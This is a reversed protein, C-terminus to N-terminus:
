FPSNFMRAMNGISSSANGISGPNNTAKGFELIIGKLEESNVDIRLNIFRSLENVNPAKSFLKLYAPVIQQKVAGIVKLAGDIKAMENRIYRIYSPPAKRPGDSQNPGRELKLDDLQSVEKPRNFGLMPLSELLALITKADIMILQVGDAGIKKSGYIAALFRNIVCQAVQNYYFGQYEVAEIYPATKGVIDSVYECVKHTFPSCEYAADSYTAWNFDNSFQTYIPNIYSLIRAAAIQLSKNILIQFNSLESDFSVRNKYEEDISKVIMAQLNPLSEACYSATNAVMMLSVYQMESLSEKKAETAIVHQSLLELFGSLLRKYVGVIDFFLSGTSLRTCETKSSNIYSFFKNACMYYEKVENPEPVWAETQKAEALMAMVHNLQMESYAGMHSEFCASILGRFNIHPTMVAQPMVLKTEEEKKKNDKPDNDKKLMYAYKERVLDAASKNSKNDTPAYEGDDDEKPTTIM